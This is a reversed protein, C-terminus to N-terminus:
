TQRSESFYLLDFHFVERFAGPQDNRVPDPGRGAQQGPM